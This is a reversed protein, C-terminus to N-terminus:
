DIPIMEKKRGLKYNSSRIDGINNKISKCYPDKGISIDDLEILRQTLCGGGCNSFFECKGCESKKVSNHFSRILNFIRSHNWIEEINMKRIDNENQEPIVRKLSVCPFLFGDPRLIAKDIGATCKTRNDINLCNFPAGLRLQISSNLFVDELIIKLKHINEGTMELNDRNKAGRGQPVFRLVSLQRIGLEEAMHCTQPIYEFNSLVPVFHLEVTHGCGQARKISTILNDFSGKKTTIDEHIEANPGHISFIIKDVAFDKLIQFTDEKISTIRNESYVNGCTYLNLTLGEKKVYQIFDLTHSSELPEGGSLSITTAGLRKADDVVKCLEALSLEAPDSDGGESSCITCGMPCKRTIEITLDKVQYQQTV